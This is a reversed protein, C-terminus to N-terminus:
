FEFHLLDYSKRIMEISNLSEFYGCWPCSLEYMKDGFGSKLKICCDERWHNTHDTVAWWKNRREKRLENIKKHSEATYHIKKYFEYHEKIALINEQCVMLDTWEYELDRVLGSETTYSDGTNYNYRIKYM